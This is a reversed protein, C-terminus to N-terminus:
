VRVEFDTGILVVRLPQDPRWLRTDFVRQALAATGDTDEVYSANPWRRTM